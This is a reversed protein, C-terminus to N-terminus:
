GVVGRLAYGIGVIASGGFAALAARRTYRAM